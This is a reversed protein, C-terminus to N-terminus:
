NFDFPQGDVLVSKVPKGRNIISQVYKRPDKVKDYSVKSGSAYVITVTSGGPQLSLSNTRFEDSVHTHKAM